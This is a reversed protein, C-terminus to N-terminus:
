AALDEDSLAQMSPELANIAEVMKDMRRLTRENRSGFMKKILTTLMVLHGELIRDQKFMLCM